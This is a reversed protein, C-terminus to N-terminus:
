ENKTSILYNIGTITQKVEFEEPVILNGENDKPFMLNATQEMIILKM